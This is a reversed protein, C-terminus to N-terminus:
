SNIRYTISTLFVSFGGVALALATTIGLFAVINSWSVGFIWWAFGFILLLQIIAFIVGSVFVGTFYERGSVNAWIFRNFIHNEKEMFTFSSIATAIYLVNMVAMGITYYQ